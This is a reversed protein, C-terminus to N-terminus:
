VRALWRGGEATRRRPILVFLFGGRARTLTKHKTSGPPISGGVEVSGSNQEHIGYFLEDTGRYREGLQAIAGHTRKM